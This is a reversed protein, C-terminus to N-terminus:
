QLALGSRESLCDMLSICEGLTVKVTCSVDSRCVADRLDSSDLTESGYANKMRTRALFIANDRRQDVGNRHIGYLSEFDGRELGIETLSEYGFRQSVYRHCNMIVCTMNGFRSSGIAHMRQKTLYMHELDTVVITGVVDGETLDDISKTKLRIPTEGEHREIKNGKRDSEPWTVGIRIKPAHNPRKVEGKSRVNYGKNKLYDTYLRQIGLEPTFVMCSPYNRDVIDSDLLRLLDSHRFRLEVNKNDDISSAMMICHLVRSFGVIDEVVQKELLNCLKPLSSLSTNLKDDRDGITSMFVDGPQIIGAVMDSIDDNISVKLVGSADGDVESRLYDILMLLPVYKNTPMLFQYEDSVSSWYQAIFSQLDSDDDLSDNSVHVYINVDNRESGNNLDVYEVKSDFIASMRNEYDDHCNSSSCKSDGEIRNLADKWNLRGNSNKNIDAKKFITRSGVEFRFMDQMDNESFLLPNIVKNGSKALRFDLNEAITFRADVLYSKMTDDALPTYRNLYYELFALVNSAIILSDYEREDKAAWEKFNKLGKEVISEQMRMEDKYRALIFRALIDMELQPIFRDADRAYIEIPERVLRGLKKTVQSETITLDHKM